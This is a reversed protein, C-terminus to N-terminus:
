KIRIEQTWKVKDREDNPIDLTLHLIKDGKDYTDIIDYKALEFGYYENTLIRKEIFPLYSYNRYIEIRVGRNDSIANGLGTEKYILGSEIEKEVRPEFEATVFGIGLAGITGSLYGLGFVLTMLIYGFVKIFKSKIRVIRWLFFCIGLYYLTLLTWDIELSTTSIDVAM